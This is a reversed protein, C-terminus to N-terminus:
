ANFYLIKLLFNPFCFYLFNLSLPFGLVSFSFSFPSPLDNSGAFSVEGAAATTTTSSASSIFSTALPPLHSQNGIRSQQKQCLRHLVQKGVPAM